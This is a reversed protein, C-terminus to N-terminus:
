GGFNPQISISDAESDFGLANELLISAKAEIRDLRDQSITFEPAIDAALNYKLVRFWEAPFDPSDNGSDFIDIPREFTFRALQDANNATQWLYM